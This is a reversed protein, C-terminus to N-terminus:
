PTDKDDPDTITLLSTVVPLGFELISNARAL